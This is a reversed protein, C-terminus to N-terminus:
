YNMMSFLEAVPELQNDQRMNDGELAERVTKM